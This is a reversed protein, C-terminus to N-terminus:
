KGPAKDKEPKEEPVERGVPFVFLARQDKGLKLLTAAESISSMTLVTGLGLAAAALYINEGAAAGDAFAYDRREPASTREPYRDFNAVLILLVPADKAWAAGALKGRLDATDRPLLAHEKPSYLFTGEESAVFVDISASGFASPATRKGGQPHAPDARTIGAAAWLLAGIQARTLKAASDFRRASHRKVLAEGVSMTLGEPGPLPIADGSAGAELALLLALGMVPNM